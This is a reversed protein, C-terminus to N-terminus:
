VVVLKGIGPRPMPGAFVAPEPRGSRGMIPGFESSISAPFCLRPTVSLCLGDYTLLCVYFVGCFMIDKRLSFM